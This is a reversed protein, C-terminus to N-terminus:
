NRDSKGYRSGKWGGVKFNQIVDQGLMVLKRNNTEDEAESNKGFRMKNNWRRVQVHKILDQGLRCYKGEGEMKKVVM